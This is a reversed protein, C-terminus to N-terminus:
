ELSDKVAPSVSASSKLAQMCGAIIDNGNLDRKKESPLSDDIMQWVKITM